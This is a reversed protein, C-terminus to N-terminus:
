TRVCSRTVTPAHERWDRDEGPEAGGLVGPTTHLENTVHFFTVHPMLCCSLLMLHSLFTLHALGLIGDSLFRGPDALILLSKNHATASMDISM